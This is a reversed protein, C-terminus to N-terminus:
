FDLGPFFADEFHELNSKSLDYGTVTIIDFRFDGDYNISEMYKTAASVLLKQKRRNVMVAPDGFDNNKRSKVEVFILNKDKEAIIDIEAKQSIWNIERIAYDLKLLYTFAIDEALNGKNRNNSKNNL